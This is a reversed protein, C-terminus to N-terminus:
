LLSHFLSKFHTNNVATLQSARRCPFAPVLYLKLHLNRLHSWQDFADRRRGVAAGLADDGPDRFLENALTMLDGQKGAAIRHGRSSQDRAAPLCKPEISLYFVGQRMVHGQQLRHPLPRLCEVDEVKAGIIQMKGNHAVDRAPRHRCEM